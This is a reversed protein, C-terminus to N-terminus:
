KLELVDSAREQFEHYDSSVYVTLFLLFGKLFHLFMSLGLWMSRIGQREQQRTDKTM